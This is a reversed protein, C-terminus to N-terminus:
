AKFRKKDGKKKNVKNELEELDEDSDRKKKKELSVIGIKGGAKL